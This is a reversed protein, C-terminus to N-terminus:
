KKFMIYLLWFLSLCTILIFITIYNFVFNSFYAGAIMGLSFLYLKFVAIDLFNFKRIKRESWSFLNMFKLNIIISFNYILIILKLKFFITRFIWRNLVEFLTYCHQCFCFFIHNHYKHKYFILYLIKPSM